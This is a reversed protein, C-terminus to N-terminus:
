QEEPTAGSSKTSRSIKVPQPPNLKAYPKREKTLLRKAHIMLGSQTAAWIPRSVRVSMGTIVAACATMAPVIDPTVHCESSGATVVVDSALRATSSSSWSLSSSFAFSPAEASLMCQFFSSWVFLLRLPIHFTSIATVMPINPHDAAPRRSTSM